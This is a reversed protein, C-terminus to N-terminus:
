FVGAAKLDILQRLTAAKFGHDRVTKAFEPTIGQSRASIYEHASVNSFGASQLARVYEVTAGVAKLSILQHLTVDKVGLKRYQEADGPEIGQAKLSVLDHITADPFSSRVARAYDPSIGMAKMRILDEATPRLGTGQVARAYEPTVGQVRMGILNHVSPDLGATRMQRVYEPTVRQVKLSILNDVSLDSIGAARLGDIYSTQEPAPAAQVEAQAISHAQAMAAGVHKAVVPAAAAEAKAARVDSNAAIAPGADTNVVPNELAAIQTPSGLVAGEPALASIAASSIQTDPTHALKVNFNTGAVVAGAACLVGIVALGGRPISRTIAGLGLLRSIRVKLAGSNAAMALAPAARWTEMLTLARAYEAVNGCISVAVDDCCNEREARVRRSVWWVAPHYFLVTEVAIQFLNVFCDLRKIHALEHAIVAELQEASLGTLATMPLLVVPRFWGVVAPADALRSELYHISRSLGLRAELRRCRELLWGDIAVASEKRLREIVLWGGLARLGFILVGALWTWASWSLWDVSAFWGAAHVPMAAPLNRIAEAAGLVEKAPLGELAPRANRLLIAFTMVPSAAMLLLALVGINYRATESRSFASLVYLLAAIAAGQWVFHVLTRGVTEMVDPTLWCLPGTM